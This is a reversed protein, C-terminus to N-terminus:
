ACVNNVGNDITVFTATQSRNAGITIEAKTGNGSIFCVRVGDPLEVFNYTDSADEYSITGALDYITPATNPTYTSNIGYLLTSRSGTLPNTAGTAGGLQSMFAIAGVPTTNDSLRVIKEVKLGYKYDYTETIDPGTAEAVAKPRALPLDSSDLSGIGGTFQNGVITLISISSENFAIVKGLFICGANAGKLSPDAVPSLNVSNTPAPDPACGFGNPYYGNSVDSAIGQLKAEIDRISQGTETDGQRGSLTLVTAIFLAATVALM